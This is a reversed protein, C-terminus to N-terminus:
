PAPTLQPIDTVRNLTFDGRVEFRRTDNTGGARALGRMIIVERYIGSVSRNASVLSSFDNGPPTVSLTIDRQVSYSESGQALVSNFNVNLNDHDPHYTHLFPSSPRANHGLMVTTSLNTQAPFRGNFSWATNPSNWPLHVASLRRADKLFATNLASEGLTVITNTAADFGVFVRQLLAANGAAPNHVLLRLPYPRLVKKISTDVNTVIYNGEAAQIPADGAGRQFSKLYQGVEDVVASGVWLGASSAATAAVGVDVQTFGFNDTFRLVGALTTGAPSSMAHRNLGIVAEVESGPKNAPALTWSRTGGLPLNAYGYVLNTVNFDTRVILPPLGGIAAQGAPAAESNALTVTVTITNTSLNRLRVSAASGTDGFDIATGNLKVEFPGFYNNFVEGARIWFAQGRKVSVARFVNPILRVPNGTGLEGGPYHFIEPVVGQLAPSHSLFADFRPPNVPVTPFGIFNLGTITWDHRPPVPRGKLTWTYTPVNVGVRVLYAADGDLRQLSNADRTRVWSSWESGPNPNQPSDTFQTTFPPNWRWIEVIPNSPDGGVLANLTTYDANVHLFVANWGSKLEISQSQWQARGPCVTSLLGM